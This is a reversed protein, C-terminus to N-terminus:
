ERGGRIMSQGKVGGQDEAEEFGKRSGRMSCEEGRVNGKEERERRRRRKKSKRRRRRREEEEQDEEEEEERKEDKIWKIKAGRWLAHDNLQRPLM